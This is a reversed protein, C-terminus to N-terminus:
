WSTPWIHMITLDWWLFPSLVNEAGGRCIKWKTAIQQGFYAFHCVISMIKPRLSFNPLSYIKLTLSSKWCFFDLFRFIELSFFVFICYVAFFFFRLTKRFDFIAFFFCLLANQTHANEGQHSGGGGSPRWGRQPMPEAPHSLYWTKILLARRFKPLIRM